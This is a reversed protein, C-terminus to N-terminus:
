IVRVQPFPKSFLVAYSSPMWSPFLRNLVTRAKDHVEEPPLAFNMYAALETIGEFGPKTANLGVAKELESRFLNQFVSDMFPGLPGHINEYDPKTSLDPGLVASEAFPKPSYDSPKSAGLFFRENEVLPIFGLARNTKLLVVTFLQICVLMRRKQCTIRYMARREKENSM